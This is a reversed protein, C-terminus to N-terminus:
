CMELKELATYNWSGAFMFKKYIFHLSSDQSSSSPVSLIINHVLLKKVSIIENGANEVTNSYRVKM